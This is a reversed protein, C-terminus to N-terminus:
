KATRQKKYEFFCVILVLVILLAFAIYAITETTHVSKPDFRLEVAHKGPSIHLARLIYNVRGLEVEKGDVTATWGPYYVESFVVVGGKGSNVEYSLANPAYSKLVVQSTNDQVVAQKLVSEFRKDAIAEHRLDLKGIGEIEENANNVYSIKDVMWANGFAYPNLVPATQNNQLPLIVYKTNLMNLVPFLSTGDVKRMDGGAEAVSQMMTQMEPAIYHEIM